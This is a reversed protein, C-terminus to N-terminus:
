SYDLTKSDIRRPVIDLAHFAEHAQCRVLGVEHVGPIGPVRVGALSGEVEQSDLM